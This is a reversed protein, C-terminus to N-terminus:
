QHDGHRRQPGISREGKPKNKLLTGKNLRHKFWVLNEDRYVGRVDLARLGGQRDGTVWLLELLTHERTARVAPENRFYRLMALAEPTALRVDSARESDDLDLVFVANYLGDIAADLGELYRIFERLTTM